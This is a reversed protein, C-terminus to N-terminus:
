IKDEKAIKRRVALVALTYTGNGIYLLCPDFHGLWSRVSQVDTLQFSPVHCFSHITIANIGRGGLCWLATWLCGDHFSESVLLGDCNDAISSMPVVRPRDLSHNAKGDMCIRVSVSSPPIISDLM